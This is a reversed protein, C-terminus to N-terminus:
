VAVVHLARQLQGFTPSSARTRVRQDAGNHDRRVADDHSLAEMATDAFRMGLYDREVLGAIARSPRREVARELWAAMESAGTRAHGADDVGANRSNDGGHLIRIGEHV